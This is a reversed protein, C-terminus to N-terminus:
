GARSFWVNLLLKALSVSLSSVELVLSKVLLLAKLMWMPTWDRAARMTDSSLVDQNIVRKCM